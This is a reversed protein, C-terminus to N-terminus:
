SIKKFINIRREATVMYSHDILFPELQEINRKPEMTKIFDDVSSFKFVVEDFLEAEERMLDSSLMHFYAAAKEKREDEDSAWFQLETEFFTGTFTPETFIIYANPRAVRVAEQIAKKMLTIPVHHFSLSFIVTDFSNDAFALKEARGVKYIVNPATFHQKAIAVLKMHPDIAILKSCKEALQLTKSGNGCGVELVKQGSLSVMDDIKAIANDNLRQM